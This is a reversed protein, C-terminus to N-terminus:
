NPTGRSSQCRASGDLHLAPHPTHCTFLASVASDNTQDLWEFEISLATPNLVYFKKTNRIRIGRSLFEIVQLCLAM